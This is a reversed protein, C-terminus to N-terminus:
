CNRTKTENMRCQPKRKEPHDVYLICLTRPWKRLNNTEFLDEKLGKVHPAVMVELLISLINSNTKKCIKEQSQQLGTLWTTKKDNAVKVKTAQWLFYPCSYLFFNKM